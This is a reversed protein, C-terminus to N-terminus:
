GRPTRHFPQRRSLSLPQRRAVTKAQRASVTRGLCSEGPSQGIQTMISPLRAGRPRTEPMSPVVSPARQRPPNGYIRLRRADVIALWVDQASFM